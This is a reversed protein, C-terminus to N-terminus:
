LDGLARGLRQVFGPEEAELAFEGLFHPPNNISGFEIFHGLPGQSKTYEIGIEATAGTSDAKASYSVANPLHPIHGHKSLERMTRKWRDKVDKATERVAQLVKDQAADADYRLSRALEELDDPM